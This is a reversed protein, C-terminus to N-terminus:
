IHETYINEQFYDFLILAELALSWCFDIRNRDNSSKAFSMVYHWVKENRRYLQWTGLGFTAACPLLLVLVSLGWKKKKGACM